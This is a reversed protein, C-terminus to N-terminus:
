RFLHRLTAESGLKTDLGTAKVTQYPALRDTLLSRERSAQDRWVMAQHFSCPLWPLLFCGNLELFDSRPM